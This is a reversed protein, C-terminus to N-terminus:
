QALEYNLMQDSPITNKEIDTTQISNGSNDVGSLNEGDEDTSEVESGRSITRKKSTGKKKAPAVEKGEGKLNRAHRESQCHKTYSQKYNFTKDCCECYIMEEGTHVKKHQNLESVKYFSKGCVDCTHPKFGMHKNMHDRLEVQFLFGANCIKCFHNKLGTHITEHRRLSSKFHFEKNCFKCHFRVNEHVKRKHMKLTASDIFREQCIECVHNKEGTHTRMHRNFEGRGYYEKLCVACQFQKEGTHRKVHQTLHSKMMFCKGCQGCKWPKDGKHKRQHVYLNSIQAFQAGCQDCKYPKDEWHIREHMKLRNKEPFEKGCVDCVWPKYGLHVKLHGKLNANKNFGKNCFECKFPRDDLHTLMHQKLNTKSVFGKKCIKCFDSKESSHTRIHKRLQTCDIFSKECLTCLYPKEGTHSRMHRQLNSNHKFNRECMNCQYPRDGLHGRVHMELDSYKLFVRGCINCSCPKSIDVADEKEEEQSNSKDKYLGVPLRPASLGPDKLPTAMEDKVFGIKNTFHEKPLIQVLEKKIKKKLLKKTNRNVTQSKLGRQSVRRKNPKIEKAEKTETVISKVLVTQVSESNLPDNESLIQIVNPLEKPSKSTEESKENTCELEASQVIICSNDDVEEPKSLDNLQEPFKDSQPAQVTFSTKFSESKSAKALEIPSQCKETLVGFLKPFKKKKAGNITNLESTGEKETVSPSHHSSEHLNVVGENILCKTTMPEAVTQGLMDSSNILWPIAESVNQSKVVAINRSNNSAYETGLNATGDLAKDQVCLFMGVNGKEDQQYYIQVNSKQEIPAPAKKDILVNGSSPVQEHQSATVYCDSETESDDSIQIINEKAVNNTFSQLGTVTQSRSLFDLDIDICESSDESGVDVTESESTHKFTSRANELIDGMDEFLYGDEKGFSDGLEEDGNETLGSWNTKIFDTNYSLENDQRQLFQSIDLDM